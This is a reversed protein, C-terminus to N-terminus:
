VWESTTIFTLRVRRFGLDAHPEPTVDEIPGEFRATCISSTGGVGFHTLTLTGVKGIHPSWSGIIINWGSVRIEVEIAYTTSALIISQATGDADYVTGNPLPILSMRAANSHTIPTKAFITTGNHLTMSGSTAFHNIYGVAWAAM